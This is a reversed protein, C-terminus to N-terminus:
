WIQGEGQREWGIEDITKDWKEKERDGERNEIEKERCTEEKNIKTDLETSM